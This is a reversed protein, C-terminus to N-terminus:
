LFNYNWFGVPYGETGLAETKDVIEKVYGPVAGECIAMRGGIMLVGIAVAMGLIYKAEIM